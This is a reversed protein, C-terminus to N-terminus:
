AESNYVNRVDDIFDYLRVRNMGNKDLFYEMKSALNVQITRAEFQRIGMDIYITDLNDFAVANACVRLYEAENELLEEDMFFEFIGCLLEELSCGEDWLSQFKEEFDANYDMCAVRSKKVVVPASKTVPTPEVKPEVKSAPKEEVKIEVKPKTDKVKGEAHARLLKLFAKLRISYGHEEFVDAIRKATKTKDYTSLHHGKTAAVRVVDKWDMACEEMKDLAVAIVNAMSERANDQIPDFFKLINEVTLERPFDPIDFLNKIEEGDRKRGVKAKGEQDVKEKPKLVDEGESPVDEEAHAEEHAEKPTEQNGLVDGAIGAEVLVEEAFKKEDQPPAEDLIILDAVDGGPPNETVEERSPDEHNEDNFDGTSEDQPEGDVEEEGDEDSKVVEEKDGDNLMLVRNFDVCMVVEKVLMEFLGDDYFFIEITVIDKEDKVIEVSKAKRDLVKRYIETVNNKQKSLEILLKM